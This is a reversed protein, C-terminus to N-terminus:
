EVLKHQFFICMNTFLQDLNTIGLYRSQTFFLRFFLKVAGNLEWFDDPHVSTPGLGKGSGSLLRNSQDYNFLALQGSSARHTALWLLIPAFVGFPGCSSFSQPRISALSFFRLSFLVVLPSLCVFLDCVFLFSQHAHSSYILSNTLNFCYQIIIIHIAASIDM